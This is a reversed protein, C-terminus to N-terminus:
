KERRTRFVHIIINEQNGEKRISRSEGLSRLNHLNALKLNIASCILRRSQAMM